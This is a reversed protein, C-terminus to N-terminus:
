SESRRVVAVGTMAVLVFAFLVVWAQATVTGADSMTVATPDTSGEIQFLWDDMTGGGVGCVSTVEWSACAPIGFGGNPNQWMGPNGSTDSLAVGSWFHQGGTGFDLQVVVTVWYTGAGLVCDAPLDIDYNPAGSFTLITPYDCVSAGPAGGADMFFEVEMTDASVGMTDTGVINVGNINWTEGAPVVFDDAGQSDYADFAAEFNQSPAGNGSPTVGTIQDYLMGGSPSNSVDGAVGASAAPGGDAFSSNTVFALALVLAMAVVMASLITTKSRM